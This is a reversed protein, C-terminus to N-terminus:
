PFMNALVSETDGGFDQLLEIAAARGLCAFEMILVIDDESYVGDPGEDDSDTAAATHRQAPAQEGQRGHEGNGNAAGGAFMPVGSHRVGLTAGIGCTCDGGWVVDRLLM